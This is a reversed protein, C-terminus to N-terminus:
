NRGQPFFFDPNKTPLEEVSRQCYGTITELKFECKEVMGGATSRIQPLLLGTIESFRSFGVLEWLIAGNSGPSMVKEADNSSFMLTVIGNLFTTAM